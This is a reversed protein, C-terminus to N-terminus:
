VYPVDCPDVAIGISLELPWDDADVILPGNGHEIEGLAVPDHNVHVISYTFGSDSQALICPSVSVELKAVLARTQVEMAEELIARRLHIPRDAHCM